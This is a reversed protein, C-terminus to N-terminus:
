TQMKAHHLIEQFLLCINVDPLSDQKYNLSKCPRKEAPAYRETIPKQGVNGLKCFYNATTKNGTYLVWGVAKMGELLIHIHTRTYIHGGTYIEKRKHRFNM